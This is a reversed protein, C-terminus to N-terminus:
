AAAELFRRSTVLDGVPDGGPVRDQEIVAWGDFGHEDLARLLAPFDVSGEGLPCFVGDRVADWFDGHRRGLDVDKLHLYPIRHSWRRYAAVPDHGAYAWHGTDLCLEVEGLLPEVEDEFEIHTGAHPHVLPRLGAARAIEAVAAVTASLARRGAGDLRVAEAPRGATRAREGSVLDIIVLLRGGASAVRDATRRAISLTASRRAPDHLPEFVFGGTLQLGRARLEHAADDPLYGLPGLELGEFGAAAAGDLVDEWPPADADDAFDVGWSVPGTALRLTVAGDV